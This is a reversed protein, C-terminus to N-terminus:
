AAREKPDPMDAPEPMDARKPADALHARLARHIAAPDTERFLGARLDAMDPLRELYWGLHKRACRLGITVGYFSLLAQHHEIVLDALADGEPIDIPATGALEAGIRGVIWPQGQMARGIMAGDAGSAAMAARADAADLIDGNVVLPIRVVDRIARVAAWDARGKYFQQRTRGHVAILAIGADEARRAVEPATLMDHDWGLRTKLTVPISVAEVVAEILHLALDPDRLLASGCLGRTVKKAPCGMNIDIYAAGAAEAMRATEAMWYAERGAIQVAEIAAGGLEAKARTVRHGEVAERSGVMESVTVPAGFRAALRRFPLDTIGAMPAPLVAASLAIDRISLPM